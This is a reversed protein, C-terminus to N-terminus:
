QMFAVLDRATVNDLNGNNVDAITIEQKANTPRCAAGFFLLSQNDEFGFRL